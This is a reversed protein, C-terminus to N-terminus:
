WGSQYASGTLPNQESDYLLCEGTRGGSDWLDPGPWLRFIVLSSSEYDHGVYAEFEAGCVEALDASVADEGPYPGAAFEFVFYVESDHPGSCPATVYDDGAFYHELEDDDICEGVALEYDNGSDVVVTTSVGGAVTTPDEEFPDTITVSGALIVAAAIGALIAGVVAVVAVGAVWNSQSRPQSAPVPEPAPPAFPQRATANVEPDQQIAAAEESLLHGCNPCQPSITSVREGCEPCDM